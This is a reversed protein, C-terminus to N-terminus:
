VFVARQAREDTSPIEIAASSDAAIRAEAIAALTAKPTLKAPPTLRLPAPASDVFVIRELTWADISPPCTTLPSPKSTVAVFVFRIVARTAEKDTAALTPITPNATAIPFETALFM